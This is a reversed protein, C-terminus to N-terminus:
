SSGRKKPTDTVQLSAVLKEFNKANVPFRHDPPQQQQPPFEPSINGNQQQASEFLTTPPDAAEQVLPQPVNEDTSGHGHNVTQAQHFLKLINRKKGKPKKAPTTDTEADSDVIEETNSKITLPQAASKKRKNSKPPKEPKQQVESAKLSKGSKSTSFLHATVPIPVSSSAQVTTTTSIISTPIRSLDM